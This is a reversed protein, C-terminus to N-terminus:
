LEGLREATKVLPGVTVRPNERKSDRHAGHRIVSPKIGGIGM